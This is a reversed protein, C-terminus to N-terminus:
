KYCSKMVGFIDPFDTTMDYNPGKHFARRERLVFTSWNSRGNGIFVKTRSCIEQEILSMFYDDGGYSDIGPHRLNIVDDITIIKSYNSPLLNMFGKSDENPTHAVYMCGIEHEEIIDTIDKLVTKIMQQQIQSLNICRPSNEYLLHGMRCEEGTKNRWHFALIPKGECVLPMVQKVARRLFETRIFYKDMADAVKQKNPFYSKELGIPAILVVCKENSLKRMLRNYELWTRPISESDPVTVGVREELWSRQKGYDEAVGKFPGNRQHPATIVSDVLSGCKAKFEDITTVPIFKEFLEVDFTEEFGVRGEYAGKRHHTFNTLVITRSTNVAMQIAIKFQRYQFNPGGKFNVVPFLFRDEMKQRQPLISNRLSLESTSLKTRATKNAMKSLTNPLHASKPKEWDREDKMSLPPLEDIDLPLFMLIELGAALCLIVLLLINYHKM